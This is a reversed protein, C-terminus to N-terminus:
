RERKVKWGTEGKGRGGERKGKGERGGEWDYYLPARRADNTRGLGAFRGSYKM